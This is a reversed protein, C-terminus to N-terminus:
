PVTLCFGRCLIIKRKGEGYRTSSYLLSATYSVLHHYSTTGGKEYLGSQTSPNYYKRREKRKGTQIELLANSFPLITSGVESGGSPVRKDLGCLFLAASDKKRGGKRRFAIDPLL